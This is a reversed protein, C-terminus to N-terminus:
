AVRPDADHRRIPYDTQRAAAAAQFSGYLVPSPRSM